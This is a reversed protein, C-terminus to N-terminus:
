GTAPKPAVKGLKKRLGVLKIVILVYLVIVSIFVMLFLLAYISTTVARYTPAHLFWEPIMLAVGIVNNIVCVLFISIKLIKKRILSYKFPFYVAYFKAVTSTILAFLYGNMAFLFIMNFALLPVLDKADSLIDVRQSTRDQNFIKTYTHLPLALLLAIVDIAAFMLPFERQGSKNVRSNKSTYIRIIAANLPVGIFLIVLSAIYEVLRYAMINKDNM